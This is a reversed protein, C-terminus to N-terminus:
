VGPLSRGLVGGLSDVRRFGAPVQFDGDAPVDARVSSLDLKVTGGLASPTAPTSQLTVQVPFGGLDDALAIQAHYAELPRGPLQRRMQVDLNTAPHGNVPAHGAFVISASQVDRLAAAINALSALPDGAAAAAASAATADGGLAGPPRTGSRAAVRIYYARNAASWATTTGTATDYVVSVGGPGILTTALASMDGSTGPIGLSLLDLRYLAGEHELAVNGGVTIPQGQVSIQAVLTGTGRLGPVPAAALSAPAAALLAAAAFVRARM